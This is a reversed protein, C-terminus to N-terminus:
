FAHYVQFLKSYVEGITKAKRLDIEHERGICRFGLMYLEGHNGLEHLLHMWVENADTKRPIKIQMMGLVGYVYDAPDYCRRSSSMLSFILSDFRDKSGSIRLLNSSRAHSIEYLSSDVTRAVSKM